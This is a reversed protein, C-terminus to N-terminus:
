EFRKTTRREIAGVLLYLVVGLLALLGLTVLVLRIDDNDQGQKELYGLGARAGIFEGIVAATVGQLLGLKVGAALAPVSYPFEIQFARRLPGMGTIKALDRVTSPISELRALMNILVPYVVVLAVLTIKSGIGLGVWLIILPAISIKPTVQAVVILPMLARRIWGVHHFTMALVIGIVIGIVAGQLVEAITQAIHIQIAGASFLEVARQWTAGPTPLVYAPVGSFTAIAWWVLVGGALAAGGVLLPRVRDFTTNSSRM